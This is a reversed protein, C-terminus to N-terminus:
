AAGKYKNITLQWNVERGDVGECSSHRIAKRSSEWCVMGGGVSKKKIRHHTNLIAEVPKRKTVSAAALTLCNKTSIAAVNEPVAPLV